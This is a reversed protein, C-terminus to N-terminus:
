KTFVVNCNAAYRLLKPFRRFLTADLRKVGKAVPAFRDTLAKAPYGFFNFAQV